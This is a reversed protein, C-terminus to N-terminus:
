EQKPHYWSRLFRSGDSDGLWDMATAQGLTDQCQVCTLMCAPFDSLSPCGVTLLHVRVTGEGDLAQLSCHCGDGQVAERHNIPLQRLKSGRM